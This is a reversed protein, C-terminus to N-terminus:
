VSVGRATDLVRRVTKALDARVMPKYAFAKIGIGAASQESIRNSYGTCLIVPIEPRIRMLEQALKDGTMNPMTMDTIVLDFDRAKKEFLALAELSSTRTTVNYGLKELIRAGIKVIPAEDDILLIHETGGPLMGAGVVRGPSQKEIIPLYISFRAGGGPKSDVAIKGGRSEVIGHVLALGMGTGKGVEKTTFYPEFIADIIEPPIGTGTDSVRIQMYTGPNLDIGPIEATDRVVFDRIDVSLVGGEKEMAHAANTCLNMLVQHVQTASALVLADSQIRSRIEITAPISSRLFKIVERAIPSVQIPKADEDTQRAFTLIQRVLQKARGGAALVEELHNEMRSGSEADDKALETYGIIASLINNFDHAIGGALTGISEMKQAQRLKKQMEQQAAEIRKRETIDRIMGIAHWKGQIEVASLSLEIPFVTGDKRVATLEVINDIFAGAGTKKFKAHASHFRAAFDPGVLVSHLAKGLIEQHLYGFIREAAENFFSVNGHDDMMIIADQASATIRRLKEESEKLAAEALKRDNIDIVIGEYHTVQGNPDFCARTSNSVWMQSGDKRRIKFEMNEVNGSKFLRRQYQRRDEPNVYYQEAIDSIGAILADPSAYGLMRAFAPNVELFRGEPTSQFFGVVSNEFINRYKEESKRLAAESRKRDTIDRTITLIVDENNIRLLRASILGVHIKGKKDVFQAELNEVIGTKSLGQVLRGRDDANKWINLAIATKGITEERTYGMIQTFGANIDIYMGDSARSLNIADPSTHFAQRFREESEALAKLASKRESKARELEEIRKELQAYTPKSSMTRVKNKHVPM